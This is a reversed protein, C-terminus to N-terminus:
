FLTPEIGLMDAKRICERLFSTCIESYRKPFRRFHCVHESNGFVVSETPLCRKRRAVIMGEVDLYSIITDSQSYIYLQPWRSSDKKMADYHNEHFLRTVPYLLIRLVIVMFAFAGLVLLRFVVNTSPRLVTDLARVSGCVNRNGPASDFITGVVHLKSIKSHSHLLEAIYRYLMFGGNSFVHFLVPNKEVEYEFVLELLKKAEERLSSFGFSETIFVAKWAATYRLVICGQNHYISSYKALYQDKCGGWGLLIVVPEQHLAWPCDQASSEPFVITYDLESDNM